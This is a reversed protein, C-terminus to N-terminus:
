VHARGIQLTVEVTKEDVVKVSDIFNMYPGTYSSEAAAELSYKVDEATIPDGNHFTADTRITFTYVLGDDSIKWEEALAPVIEGDNTMRVLPEYVNSLISMTLTDNIRLPDLAVADADIGITLSDKAEGGGGNDGGGCSATTFLLAAVMLVAILKKMKM